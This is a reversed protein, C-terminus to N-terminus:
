VCVDVEDYVQDVGRGAEFCCDVPRGNAERPEVLSSEEVGVHGEKGIVGRCAQQEDGGILLLEKGQLLALFLDKLYGLPNHIAHQRICAHEQVRSYQVYVHVTHVHITHM